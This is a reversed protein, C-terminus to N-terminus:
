STACYELILTPKDNRFYTHTLVEKRVVFGEERCVDAFVPNHYIVYVPRPTRRASEAISQMFARMPGAPFPNFMYFVNYDDLEDKLLTADQHFLSLGQYGLAQMNKVCLAYLEDSFEVGGVNEIGMRKAFYLIPGKGCGADLMKIERIPIPLNRIGDQFITDYTPQYAYGIGSPFRRDTDTSFDVGLRELRWRTLRTKCRYPFYYLWRFLSQLM